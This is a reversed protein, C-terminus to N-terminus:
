NAPLFEFGIVTPQDRNERNNSLDYVLFSQVNQTDLLPFLRQILEIESAANKCYTRAVEALLLALKHPQQTLACYQRRNLNLVSTLAEFGFLQQQYADMDPRPHLVYGNSLQAQLSWRLAHLRNNPDAQNKIAQLQQVLPWTTEPHVLTDAFSRRLQAVQSNILLASQGPMLPPPTRLPQKVVPNDPNAFSLTGLQTGNRRHLEDLSEGYQAFVPFLEVHQYFNQSPPM